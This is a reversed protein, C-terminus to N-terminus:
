AIAVLSGKEKFLKAAHLDPLFALVRNCRKSMKLCKSMKLAETLLYAGQQIALHLAAPHINTGGHHRLTPM